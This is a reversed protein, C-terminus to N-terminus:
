SSACPSALEDYNKSEDAHHSDVTVPSCTALAKEIAFTTRTTSVFEEFKVPLPKGDRIANILAHVEGAHGRDSSIWKRINKTRGGSTYSGSRFDDIVGVAGGGFVEIRERPSRKDGGALYTISAIAGNALKLTVVVNDSRCYAASSLSEAYVRTAFSRTFFQILDVFHCIEGVIRGGGERRDHVWSDASIRGANITCHIGIPESVHQFRQQLWMALPSFRRNFGVMVIPTKRGSNQVSSSGRMDRYTKEVEALQDCDIALPKEVFVHKGSKLVETAIAAHSGHRTLVFVLDIEPDNILEHSETTCVEIGMKEAIDRGTFGSLTVVAKIRVHNLSKLIPLLTGRAYQGAGVLGVTVTGADSVARPNVTVTHQDQSSSDLVAAATDRDRRGSGYDLVVGIYPEKGRLILDYAEAAEELEYHHSILHDVRVSGNSVQTLFEALNRGATWRAHAIPYDVGKETYSPDYLGPGWARSVAFELEKEYFVKRPIELGVLGAAVIRGRERSIEAALELPENSATAAFVLVADMGQGRARQRCIEIFSEYDSAMAECGHELALLAKARNPDLGLVHCGCARALQIGLQGLLGLGIVAVRSGITVGALRIAEMAIAGVAVFSASEFDVNDPIPVCLNAPVAVMEAHSAFGSGACAVRDNVSLHQVGSDTEVVVGACSYGLAVSVNLRGCVQRYAEAIGDLAAKNMVQRVLDPRALAKRLLGKGAFELMHKETGVSILSAHNKVIVHNPRAKPLPVDIVRVNGDSNSQVVQLMFGYEM